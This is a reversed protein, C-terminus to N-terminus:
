KELNEERFTINRCCFLEFLYLYRYFYTWMCFRELRLYVRLIYRSFGCVNRPILPIEHFIYINAIEWSKRVLNVFDKGFRELLTLPKFSLTLRVSFDLSELELGDFKSCSIPLKCLIVIRSVKVMARFLDFRSSSKATRPLSLQYKRM